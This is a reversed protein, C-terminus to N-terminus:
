SANQLSKPKRKLFYWSFNVKGSILNPFKGSSIDVLDQSSYGEKRTKKISLDNIVVYGPLGSIFSEIFDLAERDTLADFSMSCNILNVDLTQLKYVGEKLVDPVSLTISHKTINNKEALSNFDNTIDAVKIGDFNKKQKNANMWLLKFKKADNIKAETGASKNRLDSIQGEIIAIQEADNEKSANGYFNFALMVALIIAFATLAFIIRKKFNIIKKNYPDIVTTKPEAKNDPVQNVDKNPTLSNNKLM